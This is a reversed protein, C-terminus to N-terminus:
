SKFDAVCQLGLRDVMRPRRNLEAWRWLPLCWPLIEGNPGYIKLINAPELPKGIKDIESVVEQMVQLPSETKIVLKRDRLTHETGCKLGLSLQAPQYKRHHYLHTSEKLELRYSM